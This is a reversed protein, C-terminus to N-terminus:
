RQLDVMLSTAVAMISSMQGLALGVKVGNGEAITGKESPLALPAEPLMM